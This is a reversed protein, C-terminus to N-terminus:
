PTADEPRTKAARDRRLQEVDTADFLRGLPTQVSRLRGLAALQRVREASLGLARAAQSSTLYNSVVVGQLGVAAEELGFIIYSRLTGLRASHVATSRM